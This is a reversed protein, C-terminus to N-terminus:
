SYDVVNVKAFNLNGGDRKYKGRYFVAAEAGEPIQLRSVTYDFMRQITSLSSPYGVILSRQPYESMAYGTHSGTLPLPGASQELVSDM